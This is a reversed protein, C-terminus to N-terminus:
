CRCIARHEPSPAVRVEGGTQVAKEIFASLCVGVRNRTSFVEARDMRDVGRTFTVCPNRVGTVRARLGGNSPDGISLIAGIEM